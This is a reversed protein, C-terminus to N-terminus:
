KKDENLKEMMALLLTSIGSLSFNATERKGEKVGVRNDRSRGSFDTCGYM